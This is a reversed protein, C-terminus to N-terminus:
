KKRRPYLIKAVAELNKEAQVRAARRPRSPTSPVVAPEVVESRDNTGEIPSPSFVNQVVKATSSLAQSLRNWGRRLPTSPSARGPTEFSQFSQFSQFSDDPSDVTPVERSELQRAPTELKPGTDVEAAEGQVEAPFEHWIIDEKKPLSDLPQADNRTWFPRMYVAHVLNTFSPDEVSQVRYVIPSVREVVKYPGDYRRSWKREAYTRYAHKRVLVLDGIRYTPTRAHKNAHSLTSAQANAIARQAQERLRELEEKRISYYQQIDERFDPMSEDTDTPLLGRAVRPALGTIVEFPSCNLSEHKSSNHIWEAQKLLLDWSAASAPTLYMALYSHLERHSRENDSNGQPRYATTNSSKAGLFECLEKFVVSTFNSGRDTVIRKPAGFTCVWASLFTRATTLASTDSMASFSIYRSLRDQCVLIYRRGSRSYPVPGVVDLSVDEFVNVPIRLSQMPTRHQHIKYKQCTECTRVYNEVDKNMGKWIVLKSMQFKMRDVGSHGMSPPDHFLKLCYDQLAPPVWLRKPHADTEKLFLLGNKEEWVAGSPRETSPTENLAVRFRHEDLIPVLEENSQLSPSLYACQLDELGITHDNETCVASPYRSLADAHAILSAKRHELTYTYEGLLMYWRLARTNDSRVQRNLHTIASNDTRITFKNGWLYSKHHLVGYVVALMERDVNSYRQESEKLTRSACAILVEKGKQVQTLIAGVAYGSADTTLIFPDEFNPLALVPAEIMCQKLDNFAKDEQETWKWPSDDKLLEYLPRARESFSVVFTRFYNVLGLFSQVGKVNKPEPFNAIASVKRPNVKVGDRGVLFGLYEIETSFLQTKSFKVKLNAQSLRAFIDELHKVHDKATSSFVLLDDLYIFAYRGLCGSLVITMLRQFVSPSNKFGMPMRVFQYHGEFTSFATKEKDRPDLELNYFGWLLDIVSFYKAKGLSEIIQAIRPLPFPDTVVYQNLRRFDVVLRYGGDKKPVLFTPSNFPSKSKEVIGQDEFGRVMKEMHERMKYPVPFQPTNIPESTTLEIRPKFVPCLGSVYEDQRGGLVHSYKWLIDRVENQLDDPCESKSLAEDIMSAVETKRERSLVQSVEKSVIGAPPEGQCIALRDKSPSGVGWPDAEKTGRSSSVHVSVSQDSRPTSCGRTARRSPVAGTKGSATGTMTMVRELGENAPAPPKVLKSEQRCANVLVQQGRKTQSGEQRAWVEMLEPTAEILVSADTVGRAWAVHDGRKILVPVTLVNIVAVYGCVDGVNLATGGIVLSNTNVDPEVILDKGQFEKSCTVPLYGVHRAPFEVKEFSRLRVANDFIQNAEALTLQETGSKFQKVVHIGPSKSSVSRAFPVAHSRCTVTRNGYDIVVGMKTLWDNGLIGAFGKMEADTILFDCEGLSAQNKRVQAKIKGLLNVYAGSLTSVKVRAPHLKMGPYLVKSSLVSVSSGTDVLFM